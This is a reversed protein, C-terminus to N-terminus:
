CQLLADSIINTLDKAVESLEAEELAQILTTWSTPQLGKGSLWENCVQWCAQYCQRPNDFQIRDIDSPEFHLRTALQKWKSAASRIVSVSKCNGKILDLQHLRPVTSMSPAEGYGIYMGIYLSIM